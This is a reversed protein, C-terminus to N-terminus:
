GIDDANRIVEELGELIKTRVPQQAPDLTAQMVVQVFLPLIVGQVDTAAVIDTMQGSIRAMTELLKDITKVSELILNRPDAVKWTVRVPDMEIGSEVKDLLEQLSRRHSVTKTKGPRNTPEETTYVVDIERAHPALTYKTPRNPDTLFEDCADLMKQCYGQLKDIEKLFAEASHDREELQKEAIEKGFSNKMFTQLQSQTVGPYKEVITAYPVQKVLDRVIAKRDPRSNISSYGSRGNHGPKNGSRGKEVTEPPNTKIQKGM